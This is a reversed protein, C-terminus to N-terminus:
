GHQFVIQGSIFMPQGDIGAAVAIIAVRGIRM